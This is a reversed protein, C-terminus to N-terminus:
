PPLPLGHPESGQAYSLHPTTSWSLARRATAKVRARAPTPVSMRLSAIPPTRIPRVRCLECGTVSEAACEANRGPTEAVERRSLCRLAYVQAAQITVADMAQDGVRKTFAVEARVPRWHASGLSCSPARACAPNPSSSCTRETSPAMLPTTTSAMPQETRRAKWDYVYLLSHFLIAFCFVRGASLLSM